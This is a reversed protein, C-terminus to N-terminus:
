LTAISNRIIAVQLQWEEDGDAKGLARAAYYAVDGPNNNSWAMGGAVRKLMDYDLINARLHRESESFPVLVGLRDEYGAPIEEAIAQADVTLTEGDHSTDYQLRELTESM